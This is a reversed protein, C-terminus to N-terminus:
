RALRLRGHAPSSGASALRGSVPLGMTGEGIVRVILESGPLIIAPKQVGIGDAARGRFPGGALRGDVRHCCRARMRPARLGRSLTASVPPPSGETEAAGPTSPLPGVTATLRLLYLREREM